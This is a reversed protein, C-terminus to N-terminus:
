EIRAKIGKKALADILSQLADVGYKPGQMHRQFREGAEQAQWEGAGQAHALEHAVTNRLEVPDYDQNPNVYIEDGGIKNTLGAMNTNAPNTGFLDSSMLARIAGPTPGYSITKLKGRAEPAFRLVDNLAPELTKKDSADVVLPPTRWSPPHNVRPLDPSIEEGEPAKNLLGLLKADNDEPTDSKVLARLGQLAAQQPTPM